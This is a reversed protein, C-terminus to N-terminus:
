KFLFLALAGLAVPLAWKPIISSTTPISIAGDGASTTSLKWFEPKHESVYASPVNGPITYDFQWFLRNNFLVWSYVPGVVLGKQVVGIQSGGPFAFLPRDQKAILYKGIIDNATM